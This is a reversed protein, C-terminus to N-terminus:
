VVLGPVGRLAAMDEMVVEYEECIANVKADRDAHDCAAADAQDLEADFLLVDDGYLHVSANDALREIRFAAGNGCSTVRYRDTVERTIERM